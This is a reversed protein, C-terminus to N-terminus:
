GGQRVAEDDGGAARMADFSADLKAHVLDRTERATGLIVDDGGYGMGELVAIADGYGSDIAGRIVEEFRALREEPSLEATQARFVGFLGTSFEAIRAATAEPSMDMGTAADLDVGAEAFEAKVRETLREQMVGNVEAISAATSLTVRDAGGSRRAQVSRGLNANEGRSRVGRAGAVEGAGRRERDLAPNQQLLRSVLVGDSM